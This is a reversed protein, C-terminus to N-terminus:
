FLVAKCARKTLPSYVIPIRGRINSKFIKFSLLSDLNPNFM